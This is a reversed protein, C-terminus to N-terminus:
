LPFIMYVFYNLAVIHMVFYYFLNFIFTWVDVVNPGTSLFEMISYFANKVLCDRLLAKICKFIHINNHFKFVNQPLQNFIKVSSYCVVRQILFLRVSPIHLKNQQRTNVGHVSINTQYINLSKVAFIVMAYIYLCPVTLIELKKFGEKCSSRPGLRLL